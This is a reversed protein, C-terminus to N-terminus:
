AVIDVNAFHLPHCGVHEPERAYLLLYKHFAIDALGDFGILNRVSRQQRACAFGVVEQDGGAYGRRMDCIRRDSHLRLVHKEPVSGTDGRCLCYLTMSFRMAYVDDPQLVLQELLSLYEGM